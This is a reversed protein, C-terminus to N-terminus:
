APHDILLRHGIEYEALRRTPLEVVSEWDTYARDPFFALLVLPLQRWRVHQETDEITVVVYCDELTELFDVLVGTAVEGGIIERQEVGPEGRARALLIRADREVLDVFREARDTAFDLYDAETPQLLRADMLALFRAFADDPEGSRHLGYGCLWVVDEDFWTAGRHNHGYALRYVTNGGASAGVIKSGLPDACRDKKFARLIEHDPLDAWAADEPQGLDETLCRRTIRLEYEGCFFSKRHSTGRWGVIRM